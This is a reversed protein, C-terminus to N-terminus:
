VASKVPAKWLQNGKGTCATGTLQIGDVDKSATLCHHTSANIIENATGGTGTNWVQTADSASCAQLFAKGGTETLCDGNRVLQGTSAQTWSQGLDSECQFVQIHSGANGNGPDDACADAELGANDKAAGQWLAGPVATNATVQASIDLGLLSNLDDTSLGNFSPLGLGGLIGGLTTPLGPIIGLLGTGTGLITSPLGNLLSIDLASLSALGSVTFNAIECSNATPAGVAAQLNITKTTGDALATFSEHKTATHGNVSCNVDFSVNETLNQLDGILGQLDVLDLGALGSTLGGLDGQLTSLVTGTLGPSSTTLTFSTPNLVTTSGETCSPLVGATLVVGSTSCSVAVQNTAAQAVGGGAAVAGAAALGAVAASVATKRFFRM